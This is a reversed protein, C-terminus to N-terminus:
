EPFGLTCDESQGRELRRLKEPDMDFEEFLRDRDRKSTARYAKLETLCGMIDQHLWAFRQLTIYIGLDKARWETCCALLYPSVYRANAYLYADDVLVDVGGVNYVIRMLREFQERRALADPRWRVFSGDAWVAEVLAEISPVLPLDALAPSGSTDVAFRRRRGRAEMRKRAETTKGSGPCGPFGHVGM